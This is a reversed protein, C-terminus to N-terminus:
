MLSDALRDIAEKGKDTPSVQASEFLIEDPLHMLGNATDITVHVGHAELRTQVQELIQKRTEDASTLQETTQKFQVAFYMLLIIFIFVLGVMMDTMSVFYSEQEITDEAAADDMM